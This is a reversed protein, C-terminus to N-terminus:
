PKKHIKESVDKMGLEKLKAPTPVGNNDWGRLSYYEDLMVEWKEPDLKEGKHTGTSVTLRRSINRPLLRTPKRVSM